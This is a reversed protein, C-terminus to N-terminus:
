DSSVVLPKTLMVLNDSSQGRKNKITQNSQGHPHFQPPEKADNTKGGGGATVKGNVRDLIFSDSSTSDVLVRPPNVQPRVTM